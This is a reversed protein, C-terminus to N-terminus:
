DELLDIIKKLNEIMSKKDNEKLFVIGNSKENITTCESVRNEDVLKTENAINYTEKKRILSELFSDQNIEFHELIKNIYKPWSLTNGSELRNYASLDINLIDAMQKTSLDREIRLLKIKKVIEAHM